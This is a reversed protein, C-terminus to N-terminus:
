AIKKKNDFIMLVINGDCYTDILVMTHTKTEWIHKELHVYRWVDGGYTTDDPFDKDDSYTVECMSEPDVENIKWYYQRGDWVPFSRWDEVYGFEAFIVDRYAFYEDISDTM